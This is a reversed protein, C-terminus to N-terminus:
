VEWELGGSGWSDQGEADIAGVVVGAWIRMLRREEAGIWVRGADRGLWWGESGWDDRGAQREAVNGLLEDLPPPSSRGMLASAAPKALSVPDVGLVRALSAHRANTTPLADLATLVRV